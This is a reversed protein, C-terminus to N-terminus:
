KSKKVRKFFTFMHKLRQPKLNEVARMFRSKALSYGKEEYEHHGEYLEELTPFLFNKVRNRKAKALTSGEASRRLDNRLHIDNTGHNGSLIIDKVTESLDTEPTEGEFWYRELAFLKNANEAFDYKDLVANIYGSDVKDGLAKQLYYLDLIRRIGCGAYEFHKITHLLSYLYFHTDDLVYKCPNDASPAAHSFPHNIAGSYREGSGKYFEKFFETHFEIGTEKEPYVNLENEHVINAEWGCERMLEAIKDISEADVIFDIDSMMRLEPAPYFTKTITGQAETWRINNQTLLDTLKGYQAVQRANRQVSHFYFVQWENYLEADPKNNLKQVSLFAINAVEHVKGIAFVNAFSVDQPKEQPQLDHVACSILHVLYQYDYRIEM